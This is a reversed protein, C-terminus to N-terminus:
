EFVNPLCDDDVKSPTSQILFLLANISLFFLNPWGKAINKCKKAIINSIVFITRV